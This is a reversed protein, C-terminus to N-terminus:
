DDHQVGVWQATQSVSVPLASLTLTLAGLAWRTTSLNFSVRLRRGTGCVFIRYVHHERDEDVVASSTWESRTRGDLILGEDFLLPWFVGLEDILYLGDCLVSRGQRYLLEARLCGRLTIQYPKGETLRHTSVVPAGGPYLTTEESPPSGRTRLQVQTPTQIDLTLKPGEQRNRGAPTNTVNDTLVLQDIDSTTRKTNTM